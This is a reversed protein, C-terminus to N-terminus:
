DAYLPRMNRLVDDRFYTSLDEPTRLDVERGVLGQLEMAMGGMDFLSIRQGPKFEVLLDVDSQPGFDDRLASGFLSLRVVGHRRCFAAITQEDINLRNLRMELLLM